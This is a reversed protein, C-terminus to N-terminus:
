DELQDLVGRLLVDLIRKGAILMLWLKQKRSMVPADRVAESEDKM